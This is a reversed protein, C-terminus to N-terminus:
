AAMAMPSFGRAQPHYGYFIKDPSVYDDYFRQLKKRLLLRSRHLRSKVAPISLNLVEGVEENSLGDVDRLIFITQYEDPLTAIAEQLLAKLEHQSSMYDIDASDQRTMALAEDHDNTSVDDISSAAHKRRSRLKMFAANATIRYLWSSFASKGQFTHLKEHLTLFVDQVVEETDQENRTIRMGLNYVKESYRTVIEVFCEKEGRLFRRVLEKDQIKEAM